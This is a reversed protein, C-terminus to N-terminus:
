EELLSSIRDKYEQLKNKYEEIEEENSTNEEQLNYVMDELEDIRQEYYEIQEDYYNREEQTQEYNNKITSINKSSTYIKIKYESLDYYNHVEKDKLDNIINNLIDFNFEDDMSWIHLSNGSFEIKPKSLGDYYLVEVKITDTLSQDIVYEFNYNNYIILDKNFKFTEIQSKLEYNEPIQDIFKYKTVEIMTSGIGVGLLGLTILFEIFIRKIYIKKNAIFNFILELLVSIGLLCSILLIIPGFFILGKIILWICIVLCIMFGVFAMMFPLSFFIAFIKLITLVMKGLFGLISSNKREIVVEKKIPEQKNDNKIEKAQEKEDSKEEKVEKFKDLYEIKYVFFFIMFGLVVFAAELIFDWIGSLINSPVTGFNEFLDKGINLIYNIPIRLLSIGLCVLFMVIIMKLIETAKMSSFMKVSKNIIEQFEAVFENVPKKDKQVGNEIVSKENTLDELSINFIKCMQLLKEMEPYSAGSEWKSVSQRSVNLKEALQEQSLNNDKRLKQIKENLNM